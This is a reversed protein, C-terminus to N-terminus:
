SGAVVRCGSGTGWGRFLLGPYKELTNRWTFIGDACSFAHLRERRAQEGELEALRQQAQDLGGSFALAAPPLRAPLQGALGELVDEAEALEAEKASQLAACRLAACRLVACCLEACRLVACCLMACYSRALTPLHTLPWDHKMM